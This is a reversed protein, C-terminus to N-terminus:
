LQLDLSIAFKVIPCRYRCSGGAPYAGQLGGSVEREIDDIIRSPPEGEMLSM